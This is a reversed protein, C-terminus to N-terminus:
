DLLGDITLSDQHRLAERGEDLYRCVQLAVLEDPLSELLQPLEPLEISAKRLVGTHPRCFAIGDTTAFAELCQRATPTHILLLFDARERPSFTSGIQGGSM